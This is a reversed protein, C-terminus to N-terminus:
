PFSSEWAATQIQSGNAKTDGEHGVTCCLSLASTHWGAWNARSVPEKSCHPQPWCARTLRFTSCDMMEGGWVGRFPQPTNTGGPCWTVLPQPLALTTAELWSLSSASIHQPRARTKASKEQNNIWNGTCGRLQGQRAHSRTVDTHRPQRRRGLQTVALYDFVLDVVAGELFTLSVCSPLQTEM